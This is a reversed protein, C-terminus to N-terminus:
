GKNDAVDKFDWGFDREFRSRDDVMFGKVKSTYLYEEIEGEAWPIKALELLGMHLLKKISKEIEEPSANTYTKVLEVAKSKRAGKVLTLVQKDFNTLIDRDSRRAVGALLSKTLKSLGRRFKAFLKHIFKTTVRINPRVHEQVDKDHSFVPEYLKESTKKENHKLYRIIEEEDRRIKYWSYSMFIFIALLILAFASVVVSTIGVAKFQNLSSATQNKGYSVIIQLSYDGPALDLGKIEKVYALSGSIAVTEDENYIVDKGRLVRYTVKIDVLESDNIERLDVSFRLNNWPFVWGTIINVKADFLINKCVRLEQPKSDNAVCADNEKKCSREQTIDSSCFSWPTCTWKTICANYGSSGSSGSGDTGGGSSQTIDVYGKIGSHRLNDLRFRSGEDLCSVGGITVNSGICSNFSTENSGDCGSSIESASNIDSDKTCLRTYDDDGIYLTKNERLQGFFNVVISDSNKEISVNRLNLDSISFNYTFNVIISSGDSITIQQAGSFTGNTSNGGISINLDSIGSTVVNSENGELTDLSDSVGDGDSDVLINVTRTETYNKNNLIDSISVNYYYTGDTLGTWNITYVPITFTTINLAGTSNYLSFTINAFNSETWSVNVYARSLTSNSNNNLTGIGYSILPNISDVFFTVASFNINNSSDNAYVKWTSSGQGSNLGTINIGCTVTTNTVGNNVSYWCSQLGLDSVTYNLATQTSNYSKNIPYNISVLPFATDAVDIWRTQLSSTYNQTAGLVATVNKSGLNNVSTLNSASVGSAIINGDLYLIFTGEGTLRSANVTVTDGLEVTRNSANGNLYVQVSGAAKSVTINLFASFASYNQNAVASYNVVFDGVGFTINQAISVATGNINISVATQNAGSYSANAQQPYNVSLNANNGNLLPTISQSTKAVTYTRLTSVNYNRNSGNGFAWWYYNYDGAALNIISANFVSSTNTSSYNVGNFEFGVTGNTSSITVNFRYVAGAAYASNNAPNEAFSSFIPFEGDGTQSVNVYFTEFSSTYNQTAVYLTSINFIGQTGFATLNNLPSNGQNILTGNNYLRLVGEGTALTGNLYISNGSTITINSRSHNLFTNVESAAKSVTYIQVSTSNSNGASDNAYWYYNYTGAALNSISFNYVNGNKTSSYNVGNFEILVTEVNFNDTWTSNFRYFAGSVYATGNAPNETLSSFQPKSTDLTINRTSLSALNNVTDNATANYFYIGESLGSFNIYNPSTATRSFNIQSNSSNYLRIVVAQLNSDSATVNIEIYNRNKFVGSSETPSVYNITPATTDVSFSRTETGNLNNSTDNVYYRVTYGGDAISTNTANFDRNGNNQMTVNNIGGDLTYRATANENTTVNFVIPLANYTTNQPQNIIVLPFTTDTVSVSWEEYFSSYNSTGSYNGGVRFLGTSNFSYNYTLNGAITANVQLGNITMNLSGYDGKVLSVNLMLSTGLSVTINSRSHNIFTRVDGVGQNVTLVATIISDNATWNTGSTGNFKYTYTGVGLTIVHPNSVSVGNRYLSYTVDADGANSESGTSTTETPYTVATSPAISISGNLTGKTVNAFRSITVATYNQNAAANSTFNYYGVGLNQFLNNSSTVDAGDRLLTVTQGTSSATSANVQSPYSININGSTSNLLLAISGAAVNIVYTGNQSNNVNGASDNAYWYYDYTGAALNVFTVNYVSATLNHATYNTGNFQLLVKSLASSDTVTANFQYSAGASYTAPSTPNVVLGTVSPPAQDVTFTVNKTSNLNGLIDWAYYRVTYSGDAITANTANFGTGSSNGTMTVNNIGGDLTYNATANENTSINFIIPPKLTANQPNIITVLPATTDSATYILTFNSNNMSFNAPAVTSNDFVLYNWYFTDSYPLAVSINVGNFEGSISRMTTNVLVGTSNWIHLTANLLGVNDTFTANFSQSGVTVSSGNVPAILNVVPALSAEYSVIAEMYEQLLDDASAGQTSSMFIIERGSVFDKMLGATINYNLTRNIGASSVNTQNVGLHRGLTYNHLSINLSDVSATNASISRLAVSDLREYRPLTINWKFYADLANTGENELCATDPTSNIQGYCAHTLFGSTSVTVTNETLAGSRTQSTDNNPVLTGVTSPDVIHDFELGGGIIRLDFTDQLGNLGDLYVKNYENDVINDFTAITENGYVEYIEISPNGSTTRPYITIDNWKTLSREFTVRVYHEAPIEESWNGDLEKVSDYINSVFTRNEDLHEAHTIVIINFTQDSLHPAVWEIYDYIGNSDADYASFPLFTKNEEWYVRLSNPDRVNLGESINTFILVNEYHVEDSGSVSVTKGDPREVEVSSPAGTYYEVEAAIVNDGIWISNEEGIIKKSSSLNQKVSIENDSNVLIAFGSVTPGIQMDDPSVDDYTINSEGDAVDPNVVSGTSRNGVDSENSNPDSVAIEFGDVSQNVENETVNLDVIVDVELSSQNETLNSDSFTVNAEQTSVNEIYIITINYADSPLGITVSSPESLEVKKHWKVPQGLVAGYQETTSSVTIGQDSINSSSVISSVIEDHAPTIFPVTTDESLGIAFGTISLLFFFFAILFINSGSREIKLM